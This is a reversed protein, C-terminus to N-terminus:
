VHRRLLAIVVPKKGYLVRSSLWVGLVPRTPDLPTFLQHNLKYHCYPKNGLLHYFEVTFEKSVIRKQFTMKGWGLDHSIGEEQTIYGATKGSLITYFFQQALARNSQKAPPLEFVIPGTAAEETFSVLLDQTFGDETTLAVSIQDPVDVDQKVQLFIQGLKEDHEVKFLDAGYLATLRGEKLALRNLDTSSLILPLKVTSDLILPSGMLSLLLTPIM